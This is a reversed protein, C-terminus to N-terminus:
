ILFEKGDAASVWWYGLVRQVKFRRGNKRALHNANLMAARWSMNWFSLVPKPPPM